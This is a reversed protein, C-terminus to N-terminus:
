EAEVFLALTDPFVSAPVLSETSAARTGICAQNSNERAQRLAPDSLGTEPFPIETRSELPFPFFDEGVRANAVGYVANAAFFIM